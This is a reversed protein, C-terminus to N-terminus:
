TGSNPIIENDGDFDGRTETVLWRPDRSKIEHEFTWIDRMDTIKDPNGSLIEGNKDRTISTEGAIFRVTIAAKKGELKAEIIEAKKIAHIENELTEGSKEREAIAADFSKYVNDSLLDRLTDREGKGFGEVVMVFVDQAAELFFMVDFSKDARAIDLLGHEATKNDIGLTKTPEAALREIKDQMSLGTDQDRAYIDTRPPAEEPHSTFPDPREREEGNRTGLINSLWFVLGAAVLGYVIVEAM